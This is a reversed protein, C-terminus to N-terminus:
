RAADVHKRFLKQFKRAVIAMTPVRFVALPWRARGDVIDRIGLVIGTWTWVAEGWSAATATM